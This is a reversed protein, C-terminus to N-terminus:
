GYLSALGDNKGDLENILVQASVYEELYFSIDAIRKQDSENRRRLLAKKRILGPVVENLYNEVFGKSQRIALGIVNKRVYETHLNQGHKFTHRDERILIKWVNKSEKCPRTIVDVSDSRHFEDGIVNYKIREEIKICYKLKNYEFQGKGIVFFNCATYRSTTQKRILQKTKYDLDLLQVEIGEINITKM